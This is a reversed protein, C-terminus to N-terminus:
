IIAIILPYGFELIPVSSPMCHCEPELVICRVFPFGQKAAATIDVSIGNIQQFSGFVINNVAVLPASHVSFLAHVVDLALKETVTEFTEVGIGHPLLHRNLHIVGDPSFHQFLISSSVSILDTSGEGYNEPSNAHCASALM